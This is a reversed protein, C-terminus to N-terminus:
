LGKEIQEKSLLLLERFTLQMNIQTPMGNEFTTFSGNPTYNVNMETLVCSTHRHLSENEQGNNYYVIDFESPYIWVFQNASKFEPHMHYKFQKIIKLVQEAEKSSRPYFQYDFQFTRFDLGKFVQEKKPNAAIGLKQSLAAGQPGKSLTKNIIMDAGSEVAGETASKSKKGLANLVQQVGEDAMSFNTTEEDSWSMSYRVSLQNPVHLAITAATRKTSRTTRPAATGAIAVGITPINALATAGGGAGLGALAALGKGAGGARAAVFAAATAGAIKGSNSLTNLVASAGTLANASVPKAVISPRDRAEISPDLAYSQENVTLKSALSINIYFVAYNGGYQESMLDSPYMMSEHNYKNDKINLQTPALTKDASPNSM